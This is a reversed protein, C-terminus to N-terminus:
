HSEFTEWIEPRGRGEAYLLCQSHCVRKWINANELLGIFELLFILLVSKLFGILSSLMGNTIGSADYIEFHELSILLDVENDM